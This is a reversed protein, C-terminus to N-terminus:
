KLKVVSGEKIKNIGEYIVNDNPKLGELIEIMGDEKIGVKVKKKTVQNKNNVLYVYAIDDKNIIANERIVYSIRSELPMKLNVMMGPKIKNNKNKIKGLVKFSRSTKDIVPDIVYINGSINKPINTGPDLFFVDNLKVKNSFNEPIYVQIKLTKIDHLETIVDGPKVFSGESFNRIGTYGDFPAKIKHDEIKAMIEQVKGSLKKKSMLRNDLISKSINGKESLKLAREYNINAEELEARVQALTAYEEDDILEILLENKKVFKGEEFIIKKIKESVVSTIKVSENALVTGPLEIIDSIERSEPKQAGVIIPTQAYVQGFYILCLTYLKILNLKM